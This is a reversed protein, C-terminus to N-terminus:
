MYKYINKLWKYIKCMAPFDIKEYVSHPSSYGASINVTEKVLKRIHIIDALTGSDINLPIDALIAHKAIEALFFRTCNVGGASSKLLDGNGRRDVTISYKVDEFFSPNNKIAYDSGVCGAEEQVSFFIKMPKDIYQALTLILAIGCKDDGGLVREKSGSIIGTDENYLVKFVKDVKKNAEIAEEETMKYYSYTYVEDEEAGSNNYNYMDYYHGGYYRNVDNFYSKEAKGDGYLTVYYENFDTTDKEWRKCSENTKTLTKYAQCETTQSNDMVIQVCDDLWVCSMCSKTSKNDNRSSKTSISIVKNEKKPYFKKDINDVIDMHANFMPYLKSKGRVAYINHLKDMSIEFGLATLYDHIYPVMIIENGSYTNFELVDILIKKLMLEQKTFELQKKIAEQQTM